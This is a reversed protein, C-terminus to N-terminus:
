QRKKMQVEENGTDPTINIDEAHKNPPDSQLVESAAEWFYRVLGKDVSFVKNKIGMFGSFIKYTLIQVGKDKINEYKGESSRLKVPSKYRDDRKIKHIM